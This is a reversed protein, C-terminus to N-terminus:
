LISLSTCESLDPIRVIKNFNLTRYLFSFFLGNSLIYRFSCLWAFSFNFALHKKWGALLAKYRTLFPTCKAELQTQYIVISSTNNICWYIGATDMGCSGHRTVTSFVPVPFRFAEPVWPLGRANQSFFIPLHQEFAGRYPLFSPLNKAEPSM